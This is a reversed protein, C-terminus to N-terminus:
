GETTDVVTITATYNGYNTEITVIHEGETLNDLTTKLLTIELGDLTYDTVVTLETEGISVSTISADTITSINPTATLM